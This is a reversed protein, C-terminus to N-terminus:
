ASGSSDERESCDRGSAVIRDSVSPGLEDLTELLLLGQECVGGVNPPGLTPGSLAILAPLYLLLLTDPRPPADVRGAADHHGDEVAGLRDLKLLPLGADGHRRLVLQRRQDVRQDTRNTRAFEVVHQRAYLRHTRRLGPLRGSPSAPVSRSM